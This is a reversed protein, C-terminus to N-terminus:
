IWEMASRVQNKDGGDGRGIQAQWKSECEKDLFLMNNDGEENVM